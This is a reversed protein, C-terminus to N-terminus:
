SGLQSIPNNLSYTRELLGTPKFKPWYKKGCFSCHPILELEKTMPLSWDMQNESGCRRCIYHYILDKSFAKDNDHIQETPAKQVNNAHAEQASIATVSALMSIVLIYLYRM